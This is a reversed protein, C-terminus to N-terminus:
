IITMGDQSAMTLGQVASLRRKLEENGELLEELWEVARDVRISRSATEIRLSPVIETLREYADRIADRRRQESEIHNQKKQEDTLNQRPGKRGGSRPRGSGSSLSDVSRKKGVRIKKTSSQKGKKMDSPLQDVDSRSAEDAKVKARRRRFNDGVAASGLTSNIEQNTGEVDESLKRRKITPSSPRTNEASDSPKLCSMTELMTRQRKSTAEQIAPSIFGAERFGSDSGYPFVRPTTFGTHIVSSHTMVGFMRDIVESTQIFNAGPSTPHHSGHLGPSPAVSSQHPQHHEQTADRINELSEFPRSIYDGSSYQYHQGSRNLLSTSELWHDNSLGAAGQGESVRHGYDQAPLFPNGSWPVSSAEVNPQHAPTAYACLDPPLSGTPTYQAQYGMGTDFEDLFQDYNYLDEGDLIRTRSDPALPPTPPPDFMDLSGTDSELILLSLQFPSLQM